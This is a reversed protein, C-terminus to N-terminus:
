GELIKMFTPKIGVCLLNDIGKRAVLERKRPKSKLPRLNETPLHLIWKEDIARKMVNRFVTVELNVTWASKGAKQRAAIFSDSHVRKIQDLRRQGLHAKGQNIAYQETELPSARKADKVQRYFEMYADAFDSFKPTRKLMPLKGKRRNVCLDELKQRAQAPTTAGELPIRRVQKQGTHEDEVTLQAYYRGNRVWLAADLVQCHAVLNPKGQPREGEHEDENENEDEFSSVPFDLVLVLVVVLVVPLALRL